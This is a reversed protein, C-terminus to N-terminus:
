HGRPRNPALIPLGLICFLRCPVGHATMSPAAPQRGNRNAAHTSVSITPQMPQSVFSSGLPMISPPPCPLHKRPDSLIVQPHPPSPYVFTRPRGSHASGFPLLGEQPPRCVQHSPLRVHRLISPVRLHRSPLFLLSFLQSICTSVQPGPGGLGWPPELPRLNKRKMMRGLCTPQRSLVVM